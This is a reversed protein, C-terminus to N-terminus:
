LSFCYGFMISIVSNKINKDEGTDDPKTLGLIYRADVTIKGPGVKAFDVGAGFVLGFDISKVDDSIDTEVSSSVGAIEGEAKDKASLKIAVGPGLLLNPKVNGKTPISLKALIPIEFYNASMTRQFNAVPGIGPIVLDTKETKAGKMTYLLEPQVALYNNISYEIFAGFAVGIKMKTDLGDTYIDVDDGYINALNVGVKAGASLGEVAYVFTSCLTVGVLLAIMTIVLLKKM